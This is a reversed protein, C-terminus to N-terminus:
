VKFLFFSDPRIRKVYSDRNGLYECKFFAFVIQVNTRIRILLIPISEIYSQASEGMPSICIMLLFSKKLKEVLLPEKFHGEPHQNFLSMVLRIQDLQLSTIM